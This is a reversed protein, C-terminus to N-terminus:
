SKKRNHGPSYVGDGNINFSCASLKKVVNDSDCEPCHPIDEANKVLKEFENNCKICRFDFIIM